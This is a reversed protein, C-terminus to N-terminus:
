HIFYPLYALIQCCSEKCPFLFALVQNSRSSKSDDQCGFSTDISIELIGESGDALHTRWKGATEDSPSIPRRHWYSISEEIDRFHAELSSAPSGPFENLIANEDDTRQPCLAQNSGRLFRQYIARCKVGCILVSLFTISIPNSHEFRRSLSQLRICNVILHVGWAIFGDAKRFHWPKNREDCLISAEWVFQTM